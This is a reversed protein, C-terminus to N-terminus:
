LRLLEAVWKGTAGLSAYNNNGFLFNRLLSFNNSEVVIAVPM